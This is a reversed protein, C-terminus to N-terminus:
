RTLISKARARAGQWLKVLDGTKYHTLDNFNAKVFDSLSEGFLVCDTMLDFVSKISM